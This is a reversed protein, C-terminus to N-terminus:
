AKMELNNQETLADAYRTLVERLAEVKPLEIAQLASTEFQVLDHIIEKALRHGKATLQVRKRRRDNPHPRRTALKKRELTDLIFTVTQRPIFNAEAMAAPESEDPHVHLHLLAMSTNSPLGWGQSRIMFEQYIRRWLPLMGNHPRGDPSPRGQLPPPSSPPPQHMSLEKINLIPYYLM